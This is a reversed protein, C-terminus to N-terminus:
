RSIDAIYDIVGQCAPTIHNSVSSWVLPEGLMVTDELAIILCGPGANYNVLTFRWLDEYTAAQGVPLGSVNSVIRGTQSCNAILTQAFIGVSFDAQTLDIGLLCDPCAADVSHVLAGRLTEQEKEDLFAYRKSCVSEDLVLPCFQEFFSPNWLLTTDAGKDTLQGLGVDAKTTFVGPWFQSERSFLNKLLQAPVGTQQAVNFILSDFQNQWATVAPRAVDIGCQSAAGDSLLGGNPCKSADVVGQAILNGALYSYPINSALDEPRLPTSLWAPPGGV